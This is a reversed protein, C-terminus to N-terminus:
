AMARRWVTLTLSRRRPGGRPDLSCLLVLWQPQPRLNPGHALGTSCVPPPPPAGQGQGLSPQTPRNAERPTQRPTLRWARPPALTELPGLGAAAASGGAVAGARLVAAKSVLAYTRAVQQSSLKIGQSSLLSGRLCSLSEKMRTSKMTSSMSASM